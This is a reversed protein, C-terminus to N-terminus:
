AIDSCIPEDQYDWTYDLEFESRLAVRVQMVLKPLHVQQFYDWRKEGEKTISEAKAYVADNEANGFHPHRHEFIVDPVYRLLGTNLALNFLAVDAYGHRFGPPAIWGLKNALKGGMAYHPCLRDRHRLDNPYAVFWDEALAELKDLGGVTRLVVDDGIFGYFKENPRMTFFERMADGWWEAPSSYLEWSAPWDVSFYQDYCPDNEWVRVFLPTDKQCFEWSAALEALRHPRQFTPCFWPM